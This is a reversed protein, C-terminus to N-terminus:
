AAVEEVTVTRNERRSRDAAEAVLLAALAEEGSCPSPSRGAVVDTFARMEAAYADRFRATFHEYPPGAPGDVTSEASTLPSRDDLGAVLTGASGCAELRVDYGAGNYRTATVVGLTGDDFTLLAAATDVDDSEAFFPAGKNAGTARVEVVERGTVWRLIDFDHVSCDRFLGGSSPLYGAPPPAPDSTCARLTHLWGLRGAGVADRVAAFGADFRRQFGVQLPVGARAVAALVARTGSVDSAVPKECFVPLGQRAAAVVAAAHATTPAAVVLGDIGDALLDDFTAAVAVGFKDALSRTRAPDPDAVITADVGETGALTEAHVAGIRGAGLLGIKM